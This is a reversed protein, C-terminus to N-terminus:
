VAREREEELLTVRKCLGDGGEWGVWGMGDRMLFITLFFESSFLFRWGGCLGLRFMDM